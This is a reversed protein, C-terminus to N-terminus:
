SRPVDRWPVDRDTRVDGPLGLMQEAVIRRQIENTGGEISMARSRIALMQDSPIGEFEMAMASRDYDFGIQGRAGLVAVMVNSLRQTAESSAIKLMSGVQSAGGLVQGAEARAALLEVVRNEVWSQMLQDRRAGGGVDAADGYRRWLATLNEVSQSFMGVTGARESHLASISVAWGQGVDGLRLDNSLRVDTLFVENFSSNGDAQRLPRVDVGSATMDCIFFTLGRHKPVNPDTRAVLIGWRATTAGSTWVKQGNLVWEEGDRQAMTALAALDSGAGPESFLQCWREEGTFMSRLFRRKQEPTGFTHVCAAGQHLGVFDARTKPARMNALREDVTAQFEAPLGLGGYGPEFQVWALGLDYQTGLFDVYQAQPPDPFREGLADIRDTLLSM